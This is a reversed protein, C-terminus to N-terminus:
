ADQVGGEEGQLWPYASTCSPILGPIATTRAPETRCRGHWFRMLPGECGFIPDSDPLPVREINRLVDPREGPVGRCLDWDMGSPYAGVVLLEPSSGLDQHGTGAPLVLADGAKVAMALGNEGGLRVEARGRCIGLM